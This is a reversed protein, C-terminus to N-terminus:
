FVGYILLPMEKKENIITMLDFCKSKELSEPVFWLKKKV